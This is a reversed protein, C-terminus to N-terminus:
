AAKVMIATGERRTEIKGARIWNRVTKETRGVRRAYDHLSVWAPAPMMQVADLRRLIADMKAEMAALRAPDAAILPETMPM